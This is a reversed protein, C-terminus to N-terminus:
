SQSRQFHFGGVMVNQLVVNLKQGMDEAKEQVNVSPIM